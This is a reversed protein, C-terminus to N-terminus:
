KVKCVYTGVYQIQLNSNEILIAIYNKQKRKSGEQELELTWVELIEFGLWALALSRTCAAAYAAAAHDSMCIDMTNM